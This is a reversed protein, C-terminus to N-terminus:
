RVKKATHYNGSDRSYFELDGDDDSILFYEGLEDSGDEILKRGHAVPELRAIKTLYSKDFNAAYTVELWLVGNDDFLVYLAGMSIMDSVWAGIVERSDSKGMTVLRLYDDVSLGMIKVSVPEGPLFRVQAWDGRGKRWYEDSLGFSVYTKLTDDGNKVENAIERLRTKNCRDSLMILILRKDHQVHKDEAISYSVLTKSSKAFEDDSKSQDSVPMLAGGIVFVIIGIIMMWFSSWRSDLIFWAPNIVGVLSVLFLVVGAFVILGGMIIVGDIFMFVSYLGM